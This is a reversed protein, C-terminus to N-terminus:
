GGRLDLRTVVPSPPKAQWSRLSPLIRLITQPTFVASSPPAALFGCGGQDASPIEYENVVEEM